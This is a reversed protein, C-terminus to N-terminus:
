AKGGVLRQCVMSEDAVPHTAVPIEHGSARLAEAMRHIRIPTGRSWPLPCAAFMLGTM